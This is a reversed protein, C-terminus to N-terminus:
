MLRVCRSASQRLFVLRRTYPGRRFGYVTPTTAWISGAFDWWRLESHASHDFQTSSMEYAHEDHEDRSQNSSPQEHELVCFASASSRFAESMAVTETAFAVGSSM